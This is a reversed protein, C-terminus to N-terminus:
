VHQYGRVFQEVFENKPRRIFDEQSGSQILAGQDMLLIQSGLKFAEGLDHTVLLITKQLKRNLFIFEDHLSSRTIPDLAGFPEDMLL